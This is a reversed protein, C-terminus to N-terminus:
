HEREDKSEHQGCISVGNTIESITLSGASHVVEVSLSLQHDVTTVFVFDLGIHEKVFCPCFLDVRLVIFNPDVSIVSVGSFFYIHRDIKAADPEDVVVATADVTSSVVEAETVGIYCGSEAPSNRGISVKFTMMVYVAINACVVVINVAVTPSRRIVVIRVIYTVIRVKVVGVMVVVVVMGVVIAFRIYGDIVAGGNINGTGTAGGNSYAMSIHASVITAVVGGAVSIHAVSVIDISSAHASVVATAVGGRAGIISGTM